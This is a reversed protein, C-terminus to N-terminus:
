NSLWWHLFFSLPVITRLKGRLVRFARKFHTEVTQESLGLREAIEKNSLQEKRRLFIVEQLRRPLRSVEEEILNDMDQERIRYDTGEVAVDLFVQFSSVYDERVSQSKLWDLSRNHISRYLYHSLNSDAAMNKGNAWLKIFVDQVVDKAAAEEKIKAFAYHYLQMHYRNFIESFADQDGKKLLSILALDPYKSIDPTM